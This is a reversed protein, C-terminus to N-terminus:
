FNLRFSKQPTLCANSNVIFNTLYNSITDTVIIVYIPSKHRYCLMVSLMSVKEM